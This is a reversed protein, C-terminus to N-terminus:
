ERGTAAGVGRFLRGCQVEPPLRPKWGRGPPARKPPASAAEAAREAERRKHAEGAGRPAEEEKEPQRFVWEDHLGRQAAAEAAVTARWSLNRVWESRLTGTIRFAAIGLM